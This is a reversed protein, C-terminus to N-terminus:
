LASRTHTIKKEPADTHGVEPTLVRSKAATAYGTPFCTAIQKIKTYM